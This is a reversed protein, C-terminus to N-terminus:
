KEIIIKGEGVLSGKESVVRYLYVGGPQSSIDIQNDSQAYRLTANYVKEGLVNYVEILPQSASVRRVSEVPRALQAHNLTITLIGNCPNPYVTLEKDNNSIGNTNTTILGSVKRIVNNVEDAIYINGNNDVIADAPGYMEAATAPGGDGSYGVYRYTGAITTIIGSYSTVKRVIDNGNPIYLNEYRDVFINVTEIEADTAQGGDGSYGGGIAYNGAVSNIIGRSMTVKRVENNFFDAIYVNGETDVAVGSPGHLEATTASGGDGSYGSTRNGAITLITGTSAFVKRVVNNGWDAIFFNGSDDLAVGYPRNLSGDTAPIGDPCYGVNGTGAVTTIVGTAVTVKRIRNALEDAIYFDGSPDFAVGQPFGLVATTAQGGDGTGSIGGGAVTVIIGDSVIVKRVRHNGYDAVFINGSDDFAMGTPAYLEASTAPGGDGSYGGNSTGADYGNGTVTSITQARIVSFSLTFLSVVFVVTTKTKM